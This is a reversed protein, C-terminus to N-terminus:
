WKAMLFMLETACSKSLFMVHRDIGMAIVAMILAMILVTEPQRREIVEKELQVPPMDGHIVLHPADLDAAHM